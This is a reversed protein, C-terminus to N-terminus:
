SLGGGLLNGLSGDLLGGLSGELLRLGLSSSSVESHYKIKTRNISYFNCFLSRRERWEEM